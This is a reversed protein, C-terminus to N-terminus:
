LCGTQTWQYGGRLHKGTGIVAALSGVSNNLWKPMGLHRGIAKLAADGAVVAAFEISAHIAISKSSPTPGLDPNGEVYPCASGLGRATAYNDFANAAGYVSHVAIFQWDLLRDRKASPADPTTQALLPTAMLLVILFKM